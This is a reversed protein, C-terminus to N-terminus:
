PSQVANALGEALGPLLGPAPSTRDFPSINVLLVILRLRNRSSAAAEPRAAGAIRVAVRTLAASISCIAPWNSIGPNGPFEGFRNAM